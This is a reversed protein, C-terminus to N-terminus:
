KLGPLQFEEEVQDPDDSNYLVLKCLHGFSDSDTSTFEIGLGDEEVRRVRGDFKLVQGEGPGLAIEIHCESDPVLRERTEVFLGKLSIDHIAEVDLSEDGVQINVSGHYSVRTRKRRENDGM